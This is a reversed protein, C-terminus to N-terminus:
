FGKLVTIAEDYEKKKLYEMALDLELKSAVAENSQKLVDMVWQYGALWKDEVKPAILRAAMPGFADCSLLRARAYVLRLILSM